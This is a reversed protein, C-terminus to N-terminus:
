SLTAAASDTFAAGAGAWSLVTDRREARAIKQVAAVCDECHHTEIEVTRPAAEDTWWQEARWWRFM